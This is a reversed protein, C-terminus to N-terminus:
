DEEGTCHACGGTCTNCRVRVAQLDTITAGYAALRVEHLIEAPNRGQPHGILSRILALQAEATMSRGTTTTM